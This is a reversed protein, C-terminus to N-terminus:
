GVSFLSSIRQTIGLPGPSASSHDLYQFLFSYEGADVVTNAVSETGSAQISFPATSAIGFCPPWGTCLDIRETLYPIELATEPDPNEYRRELWAQFEYGEPGNLQVQFPDGPSAPFPTSTFLTFPPPATGVNLVASVPSLNGAADQLTATFASMSDFPVSVQGFDYSGDVGVTRTAMLLPGNGSDRWLRAISAPEGDVQLNPLLLGDPDLQGNLTPVAPAITDITLQVSSRSVGGATNRLQVTAVIEGEPLRSGPTISWQGDDAVRVSGYRKTGVLLEARARPEATGSFLPYPNNTLLGQAPFLLVPADPVPPPPAEPGAPEDEREAGPAVIDDEDTVTEIESEIESEPASPAPQPAPPVASEGSDHGLQSIGLVVGATIAAAAAAAALWAGIGWGSGAAPNGAAPNGAGSQAPGLAPAASGAVPLASSAAADGAAPLLGLTGAAGGLILPLLVSHLRGALAAAEGAVLRCEPCGALHLEVRSRDRPKLRDRAHDGLQSVTWQCPAPLQKGNLQAQLWSARLGDRARYALAAVANASTGLLPATQAPTMGEVETYWLVTQWREPLANFANLLLERDPAQESPHESRLEPLYELATFDDVSLEPSRAQTRALNRITTYLYPRFAGSPGGGRQIAELIRLYAEAVLDQATAEDGFRSATLHGSREHRQWLEQYADTEGQRTLATLETDPLSRYDRPHRM